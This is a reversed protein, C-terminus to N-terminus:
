SELSFHHRNRVYAVNNEPSFPGIHTPHKFVYIGVFHRKLKFIFKYIMTSKHLYKYKIILYKM